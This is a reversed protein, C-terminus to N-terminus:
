SRRPRSTPTRPTPHPMRARSPQNPTPTRTRLRRWPRTYAARRGLAHPRPRRQPDHLQSTDPTAVAPAAHRDPYAWTPRPSHHTPEDISKSQPPKTVQQAPPLGSKGADGAGPRGAHKEVANRVKSADTGTIADMVQGGKQMVVLPVQTVDYRESIESLEEADVSLFSIRPPTTAEYTSALTSLITSPAGTRLRWALSVEVLESRWDPAGTSTLERREGRKKQANKGRGSDWGSRSRMTVVQVVRGRRSPM